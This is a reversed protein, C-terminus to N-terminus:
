DAATSGNQSEVCCLLLLQISIWEKLYVMSFTIHGIKLSNFDCYLHNPDAYVRHFDFVLITYGSTETWRQQTFTQGMKSVCAHLVVSHINMIGGRHMVCALMCYWVMFVSYIVLIGSRITVCAHLLPIFVICRWGPHPIWASTGLGGESKIEGERCPQLICDLPLVSCSCYLVM